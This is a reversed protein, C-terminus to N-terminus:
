PDLWHSFAAEIRGSDQETFVVLRARGDEFFALEMFGLAEHAFLTDDGDTVPVTKSGAGSVLNFSAFRGGRLVQLNHDHGAVWALPKHAELARGLENLMARNTDNTVDQSSIGFQRATPYLSGLLPLPVYAWPALRTLPFLHDQWTFYGGHVGHTAPPHHAVFLVPGKADLCKKLQEHIDKPDAEPKAEEHLWWQTNVFVFRVNGEDVCAPGPEAGEPLSRARVTARDRIYDAQRVAAAEGGPGGEEWDHNGPTFYVVAKSGDFAHLQADLSREAATRGPAGEAPLGDPYINDGLYLAVTHAAPEKARLAAAALVKHSTELVGADGLLLVRVTPVPEKDDTTAPLSPVSAYPTTHSCDTFGLVVGFWFLSGAAAIRHPGVRRFKDAKM